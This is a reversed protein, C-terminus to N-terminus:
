ILSPGFMPIECSVLEFPSPRIPVELVMVRHLNGIPAGGNELEWGNFFILNEMSIMLFFSPTDGHFGGMFGESPKMPSFDWRLSFHGNISPIKWWIKWSAGLRKERRSRRSLSPRPADSVVYCKMLQRFRVSAALQTLQTQALLRGLDISGTCHVIAWQLPHNIIIQRLNPTAMNRKEPTLGPLTWDCVPLHWKSQGGTVLSFVISFLGTSDTFRDFYPGSIGYGHSM